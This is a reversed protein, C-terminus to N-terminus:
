APRGQFIVVGCVAADDEAEVIREPWDPNDAKLYRRGDEEVLQKFTAAGGAHPARGRLQRERRARRPRRLRIGRRPVAAGHERRRGQARVHGPRLAAPLAAADRGRPIRAARDVDRGAGVLHGSAGRRASVPRRPVATAREDLRAAQGHRAGAQRGPPRGHPAPQREPLPHRRARPQPLRRQRRRPARAGLRLRGRRDAPAPEQPPHPRHPTDHAPTRNACRYVYLLGVPIALM